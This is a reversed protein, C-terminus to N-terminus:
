TNMKGNTVVYVGRCNQCSGNWVRENLRKILYLLRGHHSCKWKIVLSWLLRHKSNWFWLYRVEKHEKTTEPECLNSITQAHQTLFIPMISKWHEKLFFFILEEWIMPSQKSRLSVFPVWLLLSINNKCPGRLLGQLLEPTHSSRARKWAALM